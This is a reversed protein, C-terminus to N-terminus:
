RVSATGRWRRREFDYVVRGFPPTEAYALATRGSQNVYDFRNFSLTYKARPVADLYHPVLEDLAAPYHGAVARYHRIADVVAEGRQRALLNNLNITLMIATACALCRAALGLTPTVPAGIRGLLWAKPLLGIVVALLLAAAIFGQGLVLADCAYLALLAALSLWRM